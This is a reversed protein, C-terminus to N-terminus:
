QAQKIRAAVDAPLWNHWIKPQQAFFLKAEAAADLKNDAMHALARNLVNIPVNFRSFFAVLAPDADALPKSLATQILAEPAASGCPKPHDKNALTKFCAENYAPEQLKIFRYKGMLATPAWYYFLIPKGRQYASSIEADLAAGTGPRFNVYSNQLGYAKLKQSNVGECTWGTPCNLFRGRAPEEEDKFLATYAPLDAVSNLRPAAAAIGRKSDGKIVYDPVYWGETAGVIVKGAVKVKGEAAAKNWAESRGVWEEAIVQIDNSALATELTVTTGPVIETQCGYGQELVTKILETLLAGSEWNLGALKVPKGAKCWPADAAGATGACALLLSFLTIPLSTPLYKM